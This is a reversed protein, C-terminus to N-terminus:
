VAQLEVESNNVTTDQSEDEVKFGSSAEEPFDEKLKQMEEEAKKLEEQVAAERLSQEVRQGLASEFGNTQKWLEIHYFFNRWFEEETVDDPVLKLIADSLHEDYKTM